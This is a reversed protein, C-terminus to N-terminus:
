VMDSILNEYALQETISRIIADSEIKTKGHNLLVDSIKIPISSGHPDQWEPCLEKTHTLDRIEFANLHGYRDYVSDLIETSAKSLCDLDDVSLDPNKLGVSYGGVDEIMNNWDHSIGLRAANLTQSLVPGHPLSAYADGTLLSGYKLLYDRDALYMLKMLKLTNMDGGERLLFYVAVQTALESHYMSDGKVCAFKIM